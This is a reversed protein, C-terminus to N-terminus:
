NYKPRSGKKSFINVLFYFSQLSCLIPRNWYFLSWNYFYTILFYNHKETRCWPTVIEFNYNKMNKGFNELIYQFGHRTRATSLPNFVCMWIAYVLVTNPPHLSNEWVFILPMIHTSNYLNTNDFCSPTNKYLALSHNYVVQRAFLHAVFHVCAYLLYNTTDFHPAPGLHQRCRHRVSFM